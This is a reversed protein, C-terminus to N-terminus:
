SSWARIFRSKPSTSVGVDGGRHLKSNWRRDGETMLLGASRRVILRTMM